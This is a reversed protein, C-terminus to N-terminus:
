RNILFQRTGPWKQLQLVGFCSNFIYVTFNYFLINLMVVASAFLCPETNITLNNVLWNVSCVLLWKLFEVSFNRQILGLQWCNLVISIRSNAIWHKSWYLVWRVRLSNFFVRRDFSLFIYLSIIINILCLRRM